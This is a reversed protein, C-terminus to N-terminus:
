RLSEARKAKRDTWRVYILYIVIFINVLLVGARIATVHKILELLEIPVYISGSVIAFWEAWARLRWLGYAEVFRVTSYLFALAALYRLRSDNTRSAAEIFIHPYHHAPNLHSHRVIEEALAQLDHHVYHLFGFGAILVILGKFAEFIAILHVGEVQHASPKAAPRKESPSNL